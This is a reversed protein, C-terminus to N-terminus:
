VNIEITGEGRTWQYTLKRALDSSSFTEAIKPLQEADLVVKHGKWLLSNLWWFVGRNYIGSTSEHAPSSSSPTLLRRKEVSELVLLILKLGLSASFLGAIPSDSIQIWLSRAQALDLIISLLLYLGLLSSPRISRTHEFLSLILIVVADLLSIVAAAVSPRARPHSPLAWLILLALQIGM